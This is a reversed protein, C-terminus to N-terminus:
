KEFFKERLKLYSQGGIKKAIKKSNWLAFQRFRYQFDGSVLGSFEELPTNQQITFRGFVRCNEVKKVNEVPESNFLFEIGSQSATEAVARSFYGGPVSATKVKEGIIDALTECSTRWEALMEERSCNAMRTPHSASHSGIIHGRRHLEAIQPKKLFAATGIFNTAVFFHGRWGYKELLDAAERYASEGGDDFTILVNKEGNEIEFVTQPKIKLDQLIQLHESFVKKELKYVNAGSGSFGSTEWDASEVIDHYMIGTIKM